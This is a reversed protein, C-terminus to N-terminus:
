FGAVTVRALFVLVHLTYPADHIETQSAEEEVNLCITMVDLLTFRTKNQTGNLDVLHRWSIGVADHDAAFAIEDNEVQMRPLRQGPQPERGRKRRVDVKVGVSLKVRNANRAADRRRRVHM